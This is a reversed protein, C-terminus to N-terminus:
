PQAVVEYGNDQMACEQPETLLRDAWAQLAPNDAQLGFSREIKELAMYGGVFDYAHRALRRIRWDQLGHAIRIETDKVEEWLKSKSRRWFEGIVGYKKINLGGKFLLRKPAHKDAVPRGNRTGGIKAKTIYHALRWEDRKHKIPQLKKHWGLEKRSPMAAEIAKALTAKEIPNSVILHYHCKNNRTPERVWIAAIGQLRLSRCAKAWLETIQKPTLVRWVYITVFWSYPQNMLKRNDLICRTLKKAEYLYGEVTETWSKAKFRSPRSYTPKRQFIEDNAISCYVQLGEDPSCGPDHHKHADRGMKITTM